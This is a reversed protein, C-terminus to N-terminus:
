VWLPPENGSDQAAGNCDGVKEVQLNRSHKSLALTGIEEVTGDQYGFELSSRAEPSDIPLDRLFPPPTPHGSLRVMGTCEDGDFAAFIRSRLLHGEFEDFNRFHKEEWVQRGLISAAKFDTPETVRRVEYHGNEIERGAGHEEIITAIRQLDFFSGRIDQIDELGGQALSSLVDKPDLRIAVNGTKPLRRDAILLPPNLQEYPVEKQTLMELFIQTTVGYMGPVENEAAWKSLFALAQLNLLNETEPSSHSAIVAVEAEQKKLVLEPFLREIPLSAKADSSDKILARMAAVPIAYNGHGSRQLITFFASNPASADIGDERGFQNRLLSIAQIEPERTIGNLAVAGCWYEKPWEHIGTEVLSQEFKLQEAPLAMTM